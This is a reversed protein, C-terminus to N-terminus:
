KAIYEPNKERPVPAKVKRRWRKLDKWLEKRKKPNSKSLNNSESIDERLNYLQLSGDEFDEILKWDGKRIASSPVARWGRTLAEPQKIGQYSQLYAPFHWYVAKRDLDGKQFFLSSLDKGDLSFSKPNGGALNVLTPYFDFGMVVEDCSTEPLIHGPWWAIMPERIGGEYMMGKSGKLPHHDTVRGFGGNDSFFLVLTNEELNLEELKDLIRGLSEDTSEVMAAYAPDNQKKDPKKSSYKAIKEQKAQIPSHVAYHSMYLFFPTKKHEGIFKLAEDTLRDTIYEGEPGNPLDPNKYPSFYSNPGGRHNGGINLDFGQGEPRTGEDNGMHWKGIHANTYGYKKLAEALTVVETELETKNPTPILMRNESNGRAPSQVTYVGHRPTYQGSLLCARSPACNPANAYANTFVMGEKAMNDIHPTEYYKSGMYGVDNWGLDDVFFIIFNPKSSTNSHNPNEKEQGYLISTGCILLGIFLSLRM